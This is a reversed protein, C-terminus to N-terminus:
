APELESLRLRGTILAAEAEQKLELLQDRGDISAALSREM